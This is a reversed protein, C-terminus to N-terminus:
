GPPSSDAAITTGSLTPAPRSAGIAAGGNALCASLFEPVTGSLISNKSIFCHTWDGCWHATDLSSSGPPVPPQDSPRQLLDSISDTSSTHCLLRSQFRLPREKLVSFVVRSGSRASSSAHFPTDTHPSWSGGTLRCDHHRSTARPGFRSRAIHTVTLVGALATYGIGGPPALM